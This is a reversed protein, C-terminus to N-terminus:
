LRGQISLGMGISCFDHVSLSKSETFMFYSYEMFRRIVRRKVAEDTLQGKWHLPSIIDVTFCKSMFLYSLIGTLISLKELDGATASAMSKASGRYVSVGEIFVSLIKESDICLIDLDIKYKM